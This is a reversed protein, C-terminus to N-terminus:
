YNLPRYHHGATTPSAAGNYLLLTLVRSFSKTPRLNSCFSFQFYTFLCIVHVLQISKCFTTYTIQMDQFHPPISHKLPVTLLSYDQIYDVRYSSHLLYMQLESCSNKQRPFVIFKSTQWIDAPWFRSLNLLLSWKLSSKCKPQLALWCAPFILFCFFFFFLQAWLPM